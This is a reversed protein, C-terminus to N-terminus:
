IVKRLYGRAATFWGSGWCRMGHMLLTAVAVPTLEAFNQGIFTVLCSAESRIAVLESHEYGDAAHAVQERLEGAEQAVTVGFVLEPQVIQKDRVLGLCLTQRIDRRRIAAEEGLEVEIVEFPDVSGHEPMEVIGGLPHLRGGHFAVEHSRRGLLIYDDSSLLAASVGLADALYEPGHLYRISAATLNTGLFERFSAPGLTLQLKKDHQVYGVLRALKGNYLRRGESQAKQVAEDWSVEIRREIDPKTPRPQDTWLVEVDQRAYQGVVDLFFTGCDRSDPNAHTTVAM